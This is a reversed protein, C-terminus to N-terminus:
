HINVSGDRTGVSFQGVWGGNDASFQTVWGGMGSKVIDHNNILFM